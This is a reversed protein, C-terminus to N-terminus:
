CSQWPFLLKLITKQKFSVLMKTKMSQLNKFTRVVSSTSFLALDLKTIIQSALICESESKRTTLNYWCSNYVHLAVHHLGKIYVFLTPIQLDKKHSSASACTCDKGM